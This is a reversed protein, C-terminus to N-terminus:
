VKVKFYKKLTDLLIHSSIEFESWCIKENDSHGEAGDGSGFTIIEINDESFYRGDFAGVADIYQASKGTIATISKNLQKGLLGATDSEYAETGLLYELSWSDARENLSTIFAKFESLAEKQSIGIPFRRDIEVECFSPVVNTNEGGKIKGINMTSHLGNKSQAKLKPLFCQEASSLIRAMRLLANDGLEPAGAHAALGTTTLKMWMIGRERYIIQNRSPASILLSDIKGLIGGRLSALGDPGLNEEDCVFTFTIKGKIYESLTSMEIAIAMHMATLAKCNSIGLGYLEDGEQTVEFPSRTWGSGPSITDIHCNLVMHPHGEGISATVNFKNPKLNHMQVDLASKKLEKAIYQCIDECSNDPYVSKISVLNDIYERMKTQM